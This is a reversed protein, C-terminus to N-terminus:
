ILRRNRHPITIYNLNMTKSRNHMGFLANHRRELNIDDNPDIYELEIRVKEVVEIYNPSIEFVIVIEEFDLKINGKMSADKDVFHVSVIRTM